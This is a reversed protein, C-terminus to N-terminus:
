RVVTVSGTHSNKPLGLVQFDWIYYYTGAPCDSGDNKNKGTWCNNQDKSEFVLEGWRNFILLHYYTAGEIKLKFTDNVGDGNPTIVNFPEWVRKITVYKCTDATCGALNTVHLCVKFSDAYDLSLASGDPARLDSPKPPTVAPMTNAYSHRVPTTSDKESGYDYNPSRDYQGGSGSPTDNNYYTWGWKVANISTNHFTFIGGEAYTSDVTFNAKVPLVHVKFSDVSDCGYINTATLKVWYYGYKAYQTKFVKGTSDNKHGSNVFSDIMGAGNNWVYKTYSSDKTTDRFTSITNPCIITDGTIYVPGRGHVVIKFRPQSPNTSDPWFNTCQFYNGYLPVYTNNTQDVYLYFTGPHTYTVSVLSDQVDLHTNSQVTGDGKEWVYKLGSRDHVRIPVTFPACGVSDLPTFNPTPGVIHIYKKRDLEATCRTSAVKLDVDYIGPTLYEFVLKDSSTKTIPPRGDGPNWKYYLISDVNVIVPVVSDYAIPKGCSNLKHFIELKKDAYSAYKKIITDGSISDISTVTHSYKTLQLTTNDKYIIYQPTCITLTDKLPVVAFDPQLQIVKIFNRRITAIKCGMSDVTVMTIDYVGPHKFIHTVKGSNGQVYQSSIPKATDGFYWYTTEQQYKKNPDGAKTRALAPSLINWFTDAEDLCDEVLPDPCIHFPPNYTMWYRVKNTFTVPTGTCVVSDSAWFQAYHGNIYKFTQNDSCGTYNIAYSQIYYFGPFPLNFNVTDHTTREYAAKTANKPWFVHNDQTPDDLNLIETTSDTTRYTRKGCLTDTVILSRQQKFKLPARTPNLYLTGKGGTGCTVSLARSRYDNAALTIAGTKNLQAIENIRTNDVVFSDNYIPGFANKTAPKYYPGHLYFLPLPASQATPHYKNPVGANTYSIYITDNGTSSPIVVFISSDVPYRLTDSVSTVSDNFSPFQTAASVSDPWFPLSYYYDQGGYGTYNYPVVARYVNYFFKTVFKLSTDDPVLQIHSPVLGSDTPCLEHEQYNYTSYIDGFPGIVKFNASLKNFCIYNHYWATDYCNGNKIIVGLTKCGNDTTQYWWYGNYPPMTLISDSIFGYSRVSDYVFGGHGDSISVQCLNKADAASDFEVWYHDGGCSPLTESFDILFKYNPSGCELPQHSLMFGRMPVGPVSGSPYQGPPLIQQMEWTMKCYATQDWYADPTHMKLLFTTSDSCHMITDHVSLRVSNCGGNPFQLEPYYHYPTVETSHKCRPNPNAKTSTCNIDQAGNFTWWYTLSDSSYPYNPNQKCLGPDLTPANGDDAANYLRYKWSFNTFFIWNPGYCLSIDSDHVGLVGTGFKLNYFQTSYKAQDYYNPFIDQYVRGTKPDTFANPVNTTPTVPTGAPIANNFIHPFNPTIISSAYYPTVVVVTNNIKQTPPVTGTGRVWVAGVEQSDNYVVELSDIIAGSSNTTPRRAMSKLDHYNVRDCNTDNSFVDNGFTDGCYQYIKITDKKPKGNILTKVFYSYEITDTHNCSSGSANRQYFINLPRPSAPTYYNEVPPSGYLVEAMPGKIHVVVIKTVTTPVGGCSIMAQMTVCYNGPGGAFKHTATWVSYPGADLGGTFPEDVAVIGGTTTVTLVIANGSMGSGPPAFVVVKAGKPVGLPDYLNPISVATYGGNIGTSKNIQAALGAALLVVTTDTAKQTYTGVVVTGVKATIISGTTGIAKINITDTAIVMPEPQVSAPPYKAVNQNGSNPDGFNYAWFYAGTIALASFSVGSSKAESWCLTDHYWINSNDSTITIPSPSTYAGTCNLANKITLKPYYPVGPIKYVQQINTWDVSDKVGNGFDWVWSRIYLGNTDTKNIFTYVASDCGNVGSAIFLPEIDPLVKIALKEQLIDTCGKTDTVLLSLTYSGASDYHHPKPIEATSTDGDGFTWLYGGKSAIPWLDASPTSNVGTFKFLNNVFCQTSQTLVNIVSHPAGYVQVTDSVTCSTGDTFQVTVTPYYTGRKKFQETINNTIGNNGDGFQWFYSKPTEGSPPTVTFTVDFPACGQYTSTNTSISIKCQGYSYLSAFSLATILLLSRLFHNLRKM